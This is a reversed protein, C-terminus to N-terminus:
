NVLDNCNTSDKTCTFRGNTKTYTFVTGIDGVRYTYENTNVIDRSWKGSTTGAAIGYMLLTSSTNGEFLPSTAGHTTLESIWATEGRILRTQRENLIASRITAVDARGKAITAQLSSNNMRPVAIAALIGLVVIVFVLEIMTFAKKM